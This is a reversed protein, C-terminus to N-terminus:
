NTDDSANAIASRNGVTPESPSSTGFVPEGRRRRDVFDAISASTANM